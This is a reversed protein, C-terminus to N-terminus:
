SEGGGGPGPDSGGGSSSDAAPAPECAPAVPSMDVNGLSGAPESWERPVSLAPGATGGGGDQWDFAYSHRPETPPEFDGTAGAGGFEGGGGLFVPHEGPHAAMVVLQEPERSSAAAAEMLDLEPGPDRWTSPPLPRPPAPDYPRRETKWQRRLFEEAGEKTWAPCIGKIHYRFFRVGDRETGEPKFGCTCAGPPGASALRPDIISVIDAFRRAAALQEASRALHRQMEEAGSIGLRYDPKPRHRRRRRRVTMVVAITATLLALAMVGALIRWDFYRDM